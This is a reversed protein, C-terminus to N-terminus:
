SHCNRRGFTNEGGSEGFTLKLLCRRAFFFGSEYLKCNRLGVIMTLQDITVVPIRNLDAAEREGPSLCGM